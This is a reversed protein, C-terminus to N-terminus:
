VLGNIRAEAWKLAKEKANKGEFEKRKNKPDFLSFVSYGNHEIGEFYINWGKQEIKLTRMDLELAHLHEHIEKEMKDAVALLESSCGILNNKATQVIVSRRLCEDIDTTIANIDDQKYDVKVSKKSSM